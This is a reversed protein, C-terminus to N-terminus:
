STFLRKKTRTRAMAQLSHQDDDSSSSQGGMGSDDMSSVANITDDLKERKVRALPSASLRSTTTQAGSSPPFASQADNSNLANPTLPAFSAKPLRKGRALFRLPIDDLLKSPTLPSALHM